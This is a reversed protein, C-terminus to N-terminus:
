EFGSKFLPTAGGGSPAPYVLNAVARDDSGLSAGRGDGHARARMIAQNEAPNACTPSDGCAHGFGLTHGIEHALVEAGNRGSHAAFYCGAGDQVIVYGEIGDRYSRGNYSTSSGTFWAGGIALTGGSSCSFSGAIDNDP